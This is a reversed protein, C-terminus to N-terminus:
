SGWLAGHDSSFVRLTIDPLRHLSAYPATLFIFHLSLLSCCFSVQAQALLQEREALLAGVNALLTRRTMALADRQQASLQLREQM